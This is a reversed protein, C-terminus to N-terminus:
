FLYVSYQDFLDTIKQSIQFLKMDCTDDDLYRKLHEFGPLELCHPLTKMIGFVMIDPDFPSREPLDPMVKKTIEQLFTNPFPFKCNACIGNHRALEMSLWREMGKSQVVIIEPSTPFLLPKRVVRALQEALIELRNSTFINLHRM